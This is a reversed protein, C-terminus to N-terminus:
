PCFTLPWAIKLFALLADTPLFAAPLRFCLPAKIPDKRASKDSYLLWASLFPILLVHSSTDDSLALHILDLIPRLFLVASLVVWIGFLMWRNAQKSLLTALSKEKRKTNWLNTSYSVSSDSSSSPHFLGRPHLITLATLYCLFANFPRPRRTAM